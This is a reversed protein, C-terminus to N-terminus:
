GGCRQSPPLSGVFAPDPEAAGRQVAFDSTAESVSSSGTGPRGDEGPSYRADTVIERGEQWEELQRAGLEFAPSLNEVTLEQGAGDAGAQAIALQSLIYREQFGGFVEAAEGESPPVAQALVQEAVEPSPTVDNEAAFAENLTTEILAVLISQKVMSLAFVQGQGTAVQSAALDCQAETIRDVEAVTIREGDVVSATGPTLQSCGSGVLLLGAVAPAWARAKV